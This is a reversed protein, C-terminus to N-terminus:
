PHAGQQEAEVVAFALEIMDPKGRCQVVEVAPGQGPLEFPKDLRWAEGAVRGSTGAPPAGLAGSLPLRQAGFQDDFDAVIM